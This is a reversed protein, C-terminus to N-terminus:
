SSDFGDYFLQDDLTQREYAGIDPKGNVVRPLGREDYQLNLPNSGVDLVPSGLLVAHTRRGGGHDALPGLHPDGHLSVNPVNASAILSTYTTLGGAGVYVDVGNTGIGNINKAVISSIITAAYGFVAGGSNLVVTSNRIGISSSTIVGVSAGSNGSITSGVIDLVGNGFLAGTSFITSNEEVTSDVVDLALRGGVAGGAEIAHNDSLTVRTVHADDYAFIGGGSEHAYNSRFNADYAKVTAGGAGGGWVGSNGIVDVHDLRMYAASSLGGGRDGASNGSITGYQLRLDHAYAAGGRYTATCHTLTTQLLQLTGSSRICGGSESPGSAAGYTASLYAIYLDGTGVHDIVRSYGQADITLEHDYPGLLGLSNQEIVLAGQELTITSCALGSLDITDNNQAQSIASRLPTEFLPFLPDGCTDVIVTDAFADDWCSALGLLVAVAVPKRRSDRVTVEGARPKARRAAEARGCVAYRM